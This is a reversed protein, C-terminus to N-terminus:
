LFPLYNLNSYYQGILGLSCNVNSYNIKIEIVIEIFSGNNDVFGAEWPEPELDEYMNTENLKFKLEDGAFNDVDSKKNRRSATQHIRYHKVNDQPLDFPKLEEEKIMEDDYFDSEDDSSFIESVVFTESQSMNINYAVPWIAHIVHLCKLLLTLKLMVFLKFNPFTFLIVM